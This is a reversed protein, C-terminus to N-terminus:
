LEIVEGSQGTAGEISLLIEEVIALRREATLAHSEFVVQYGPPEFSFSVEAGEVEIRHDGWGAIPRSPTSVPRLVDAYQSRQVDFYDGDTRKIIYESM